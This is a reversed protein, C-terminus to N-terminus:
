VQSGHGGTCFPEPRRLELRSDSFPLDDSDLRHQYAAIELNSKPPGFVQIPDVGFAVAVTNSSVAHTLWEDIHSRHVSWSASSAAGILNAELAVPPQPPLLFPSSTELNESSGMNDASKSDSDSRDNNHKASQEATDDRTATTSPAPGQEKRLSHLGYLLAFPLPRSLSRRQVGRSWRKLLPSHSKWFKKTQKRWAIPKDPNAIELARITDFANNFASALTNEQKTRNDSWIGLAVENTDRIACRIWDALSHHKPARGPWTAAIWRAITSYTGYETSLHPAGCSSESRYHQLIHAAVQAIRKDSCFKRSKRMATSLPQESAQGSAQPNTPGSRPIAPDM